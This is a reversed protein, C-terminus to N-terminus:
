NPLGLAGRVVEELTPRPIFRGGWEPSLESCPVTFLKENYPFLFHRALGPGLHREIFGAADAPPRARLAAGQEGLTAEVFGVVCEAVTAAPLGHLNHQYPFGTWLGQSYIRARREVELLNRRLWREPVETRCLGGLRADAELLTFGGGLERACSLGALGGGLIVTHQALVGADEE